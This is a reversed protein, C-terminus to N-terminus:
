FFSVHAVNVFDNDGLTDLLSQVAHKTLALAQGFTSGSRIHFFYGDFTYRLLNCCIMTVENFTPIAHM